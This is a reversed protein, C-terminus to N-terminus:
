FLGIWDPRMCTPQAPASEPTQGRDLSPEQIEQLRKAPRQAAQRSLVAAWRREVRELVHRPLNPREM